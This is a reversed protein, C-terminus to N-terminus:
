VRLLESSTFPYDPENYNGREQWKPLEAEPRPLHERPIRGLLHTLINLRARRQQRLPRYVVAGM